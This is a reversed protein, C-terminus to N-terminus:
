ASVRPSKKTLRALAEEPVEYILRNAQKGVRAAAGARHLCYAIRQATWLPVGYLEAVNRTTFRAPLKEANPLLNWLDLGRPIIHESVVNLLRRDIVKYGPWRRGPVRIEEISVELVVLSVGSIAFCHPAGVLDDFVDLLRGNKPSMRQGLVRGRASQRRIIRKRAVVPKVVKIRHGQEALREIKRRIPGIAATQIEVLTGDAEVADIRFGAVTAEMRCDAGAGYRAKLQKHLSQEM